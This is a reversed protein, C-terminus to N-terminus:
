SGWPTNVESRARRTPKTSGAYGRTPTVEVADKGATRPRKPHPGVSAIVAAARM